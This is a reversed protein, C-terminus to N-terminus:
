SATRLVQFGNGESSAADVTVRLGSVVGAGLLWRNHIRHRARVYDQEAQFDRATLLQGAYYRVRTANGLSTCASRRLTVLAAMTQEIAANSRNPIRSARFALEEALFAFAQLLTVGPDNDPRDTWGPTDAELGAALRSALTQLQDETLRSM